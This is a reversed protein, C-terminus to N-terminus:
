NASDITRDSQTYIVQCATAGIHSVVSPVAYRSYRYNKLLYRMADYNGAAKLEMLQGISAYREDMMIASIMIKNSKSKQVMFAIPLRSIHRTATDETRFITAHRCRIYIFRQRRTRIRIASNIKSLMGPRMSKRVEKVASM